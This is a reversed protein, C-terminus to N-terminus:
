SYEHSQRSSRLGASRLRLWVFLLWVFRFPLLLLKLGLSVLIRTSHSSQIGPLPHSQIQIRHSLLSLWQRLNFFFCDSSENFILIRRAGLLFAFVKVKWYSPDGTLFLIAADFHHRRLTRLHRWSDRVEFHPLITQLMPDGRFANVIEPKNRCFLTYCPNGFLPKEKLRRLAELVHPPEASQIILIEEPTRGPEAYDWHDTPLPHQLRFLAHRIYAKWTLRFENGDGSRIYTRAAKIRTSLRKWRRFRKEGTWFAFAEDFPNGGLEPVNRYYSPAFLPLVTLGSIGSYSQKNKEDCLVFVEPDTYAGSELIQRAKELIRKPSATEILLVRTM